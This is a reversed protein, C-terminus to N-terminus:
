KILYGECFLASGATGRFVQASADWKQAKDPLSEGSVLQGQDDCKGVLGLFNWSSSSYEPFASENGVPCEGSLVLEAPADRYIWGAKGEVLDALTGQVYARNQVFVVGMEMVSEEGITATTLRSYPLSILNWGAKLAITQEVTFVSPPPVPSYQIVYDGPMVNVSVPSSGTAASLDQILTTGDEQFLELKEGVALEGFVPKVSLQCQVGKESCVCINWRHSISDDRHEQSLTSFHSKNVEISLYDGENKAPPPPVPVSSKNEGFAIYVYLPEASGPVSKVEWANNLPQADDLNGPLTDAFATM